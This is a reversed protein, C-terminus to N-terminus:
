DGMHREQMFLTRHHGKSCVGGHELGLKFAPGPDYRPIQRVLLFETNSLGTSAVLVYAFEKM